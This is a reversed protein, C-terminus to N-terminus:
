PLQWVKANAFAVDTSGTSSEGFVGIKGSTFTNNSVSNLYQGNVYFYLNGGQAVVTITNTQNLGNKFNQATNSLLSQAQSGQSNSYLFLDYTGDQAIRFLYFRSNAPDARFLIGGEDGQTITMDVQFAFNTFNPTQAYCPQFYGKQPMNSHYAGNTFACSGGVSSNAPALTDWQSNTQASLPDNLALTGNMANSLISQLANATATVQANATAQANVTAQAIATSTAAAAATAQNNAQATASQQAQATATAQDHMVKPQYVGVYYILGSGALLLLVLVIILITIAPSIGRRRPPQPQQPPQSFPQQGSQPYAQYQSPDAYATRDQPLFVPEQPTQTRPAYNAYDSAPTTATYGPQPPYATYPAYPSGPTTAPPYDPSSSTPPFYPAPVYETPSNQNFGPNSQGTYSDVPVSVTLILDGVPGGAWAPEGQGKLRIEEGNRVGAPISVTIRRGGPLNLTRTSGTQVEDQSLALTARIDGGDPPGAYAM